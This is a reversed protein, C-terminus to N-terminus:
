PLGAVPHGLSLLLDLALQGQAPCPWVSVLGDTSHDGGRKREASSGELEIGMKGDRLDTEGARKERNRTIKNPTEGLM